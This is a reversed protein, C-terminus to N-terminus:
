EADEKKYSTRAVDLIEMVTSNPNQGKLEIVRNLFNEDQKLDPYTEFFNLKAIERPIMDKLMNVLVVFSQRWFEVVAEAVIEKREQESVVNEQVPTEESVGPEEIKETINNM